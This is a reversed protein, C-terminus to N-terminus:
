PCIYWYIPVSDLGEALEEALHLVVHSLGHGGPGKTPLYDRPSEFRESSPVAIRGAARGPSIFVM